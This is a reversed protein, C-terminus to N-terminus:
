KLGGNKFIFIVNANSVLELKAFQWIIFPKLTIM